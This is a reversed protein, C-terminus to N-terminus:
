DKRRLAIFLTSNAERQEILEWESLDYGEIVETGVKPVFSESAGPDDGIGFYASILNIGGPKTRRAMDRRFQAAEEPTLHHTLFLAIIVDYMDPIGSRVDRLEATLPLSEKEAISNILRVSEVSVDWATVHHGRRAFALSNVGGGAGCDLVTSGPQLFDLAMYVLPLADTEPDPSDYSLYHDLFRGDYYAGIEPAGIPHGAYSLLTEPAGM